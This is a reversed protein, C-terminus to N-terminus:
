VPIDLNVYQGAELHVPAVPMTARGYPPELFTVMLNVDKGAPLLIRYRGRVEVSHGHGERDLYGLQAPVDAGTDADVIRGTLIGAKEGLQVKIAASPSGEALTVTPAKAKADAYFSDLPDPYSDEVKKAYVKYSGFPLGGRFDFAGNRDSKVSRPIADNLGFGQPVAYVTAHAVPMGDANVVTGRIVGSMKAPSQCFLTGAIAFLVLLQKM